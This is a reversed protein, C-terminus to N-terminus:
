ENNEKIFNMCKICLKLMKGKNTMWQITHTISADRETHLVSKQDYTLPLFVCPSNHPMKPM